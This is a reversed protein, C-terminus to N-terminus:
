HTTYNKSVGYRNKQPTNGTLPKPDIKPSSFPTKGQANKGFAFSNPFEVPKGNGDVFNLMIETRENPKGSHPAYNGHRQKDNDDFGINIVRVEDDDEEM